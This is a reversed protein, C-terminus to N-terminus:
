VILLHGVLHIELMALETPEIKGPTIRVQVQALSKLKGSYSYEFNTM